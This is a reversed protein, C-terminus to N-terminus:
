QRIIMAISGILSNQSLRAGCIKLCPIPQFKIM